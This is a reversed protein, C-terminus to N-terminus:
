KSDLSTVGDWSEGPPAEHYHRCRERLVRTVADDDEALIADCMTRAEDFAREVYRQWAREYADYVTVQHAPVEGTFGIPEFIDVPTERGAVRICDIFRWVFGEGAADRVAREALITTGYLRNVGELRSGLNMTDGLATYNLRRDSGINGVVARGTALGFRTPLPPRGGRKWEANMRELHQACAIAAIVGHRVHDENARPAGWFAVIADGILKDVTSQHMELITILGDFYESLQGALDEPSSQEAIASFGAIDSFLVTIDAARGGIRAVDDQRVLERVVDAPVYRSFSEMARRMREQANALKRVEIYPTDIHLPISTVLNSLRDSQRVLEEVPRSYRRALFAARWLGFLLVAAAISIAIIRLSSLDAPYLDRAPVGITVDFERDGIWIRHNGAFWTEGHATFSFNQTRSRLFSEDADARRDFAAAGEVVEPIGLETYGKFLAAQRKPRDTDRFQRPLAIVKGYTGMMTFGNKSPTHAMTFDSLSELLLDIAIVGPTGGDHQFTRSATIGLAQTTAFVYPQTWFTERSLPTLYQRSEEADDSAPTWTTVAYWPRTRPDYPSDNEWWTEQLEYARNFRFRQVTRQGGDHRIVRNEWGNERRLMMMSNGDADATNVSSIQPFQAVMPAFQRNFAAPNRTDMLGAAAMQQALVLGREIPAFFQRFEAKTTEATQNILEVGLERAIRRSSYATTALLLATLALVLLAVNRFLSTRISTLGRTSASDADAWTVPTAM